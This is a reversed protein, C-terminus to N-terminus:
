SAFEIITQWGRLRVHINLKKKKRTFLLFFLFYIKVYRFFKQTATM